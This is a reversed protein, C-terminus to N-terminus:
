CCPLPSLGAARHNVSVIGGPDELRQKSQIRRINRDIQEYIRDNSEQLQCFHGGEGSGPDYPDYISRLIFDLGREPHEEQLSEM